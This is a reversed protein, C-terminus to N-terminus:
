PVLNHVLYAGMSVDDFLALFVGPHMRRLVLQNVEVLVPTPVVVQEPATEIPYRCISHSRDSRDLSADLPGTDIILAM